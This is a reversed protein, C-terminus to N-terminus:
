RPFLISISTGKGPSSDLRIEANHYLAGHKVISLGLGTGGVEKSHSKNVRYFREFVRNQEEKPIGIGTDSVTLIAQTETQETFVRVEGGTVNYKIANDCLNYVIEDIIQRAGWIQASTGSLSISLEKQEAPTQLNELTQRCVQHLDIAEKPIELNGEDLRSLKIIDGVLVILRQAENYIRGAFPRIDKESVLGDRIIEAFGSISTLPTKLEHSVNATFERRLADQKEHEAKLAEMQLHIQRNQANIRRVLPKLEDYVDRDDPTELDIENIPQTVSKSVRSALLLSLFIAAALIFIIPTIMNLLLSLASFGSSSVQLSTGDDLTVECRINKKSSPDLPESKFLISGDAAFLVIQTDKDIELKKLYGADTGQLSGALFHTKQALDKELQASFYNYIIGFILAFCLIFVTMAAFFINQFLKAKM